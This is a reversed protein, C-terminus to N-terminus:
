PKTGTSFKMPRAMLTTHGRSWQLASSMGGPNAAIGGGDSVGGSPSSSSIPADTCSTM